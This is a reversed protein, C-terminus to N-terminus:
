QRSAEDSEEADSVKLHQAFALNLPSPFGPYCILTHHASLTEPRAIIKKIAM